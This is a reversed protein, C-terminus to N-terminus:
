IPSLGGQHHKSYCLDYAAAVVTVAAINRLISIGDASFLYSTSANMVWMPTRRPETERVSNLDDSGNVCACIIEQLAPGKFKALFKEADTHLYSYFNKADIGISGCLKNFYDVNKLPNFYDDLSQLFQKAVNLVYVRGSKPAHKVKKSSM